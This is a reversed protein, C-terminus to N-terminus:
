FQFHIATTWKPFHKSETELWFCYSWLLATYNVRGSGDCSFFYCSVVLRGACVPSIVLRCFRTCSTSLIIMLVDIWVGYVDSCITPYIVVVMCHLFISIRCSHCHFNPEVYLMQLLFLLVVCTLHVYILLPHLKSHLPKSRGGREEGGKKNREEEEKKLLFPPAWPSAGNHPFRPPLPKLGVAPDAGSVFKVLWCITCILTSTSLMM